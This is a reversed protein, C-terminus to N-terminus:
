EGSRRRGSGWHALCGPRPVDLLQQRQAVSQAVVNQGLKAYRQPVLVAPRRRPVQHVGTRTAPCVTSACACACVGVQRAASSVASRQVWGVGERRQTRTRTHTHTQSLPASPPAPPPAVPAPPAPPPSPPACPSSPRPPPPWPRARWSAVQRTCASALRDSSATPRAPPHPLSGRRGAGCQCVAPCPM